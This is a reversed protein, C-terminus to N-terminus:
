TTNWTPTGATRNGTVLMRGNANDATMYVNGIRLESQSRDHNASFSVGRRDAPAVNSFEWLTRLWNGFYSTGGLTTSGSLWLEEYMDFSGSPAAGDLTMLQATAFYSAGGGVTNHRWFTKSGAPDTMHLLGTAQQGAEQASPNFGTGQVLCDVSGFTRLFRANRWGEVHGGIFEISGSGPLQTDSAYDRGITVVGYNPTSSIGSIGLSYKHFHYGGGNGAMCVAGVKGQAQLDVIFWDGGSIGGERINLAMNVNAPVTRRGRLGYFCANYSNNICDVGIDFNDFGIDSVVAQPCNDLMFAAKGNRPVPATNQSMVSFGGILKGHQAEAFTGQVRFGNYTYGAPEIRTLNRGAGRLSMAGTPMLIEATTRYRGPELVGADGNTACQQLFTNLSATNDGTGDKTVALGANAPTRFQMPM